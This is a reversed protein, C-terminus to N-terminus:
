FHKTHKQQKKYMKTIMIQYREFVAFPFLKWNSTALLTKVAYMPKRFILHIAMKNRQYGYFLM